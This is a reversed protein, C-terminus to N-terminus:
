PRRTHHVTRLWLLTELGKVLAHAGYGTLPSVTCSIMTAAHMEGCRQSSMMMQNGLRRIVLSVCFIKGACPRECQCIIPGFAKSPIIGALEVIRTLQCITWKTATPQALQTDVSSVLVQFLLYTSFMLWHVVDGM